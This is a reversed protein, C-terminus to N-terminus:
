LLECSEFQRVTKSCQGDRLSTLINIVPFLVACSVLERILVGVAGSAIVKEPLLIPLLNKTLNRLYEQQVMKTDSYALSAASHLKGDKYKAAIALDLEESETVSRNLHKGRIAREAEYFDKFHATLIPVFRTTVIETLDLSLLRDRLRVVALRITKDVENTFTPNKSINSYWSSVFDRIILKLLEDLASNVIVSEPYLPKKEYAQRNRLATTENEWATAVLFAAGRPRRLDIRQGYQSGRSTLVVLAILGVVPLVLGITFAYGAWRLTPVWNIAYGWAIFSAIGALIVDRRRLAMIQSPLIRGRVAHNLPQANILLETRTAFNRTAIWSTLETLRGSADSPSVGGNSEISQKVLSKRM